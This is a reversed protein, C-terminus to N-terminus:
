DLRPIIKGAHNLHPSDWCSRYGRWANNLRLKFKQRVPVSGYHEDVIVVRANSDGTIMAYINEFFIPNFSAIGRFLETDILFHVIDPTRLVVALRYLHCISTTNWEISITPDISASSTADDDRKGMRTATSSAIPIDIEPLALPLRSTIMQIYSREIMPPIGYIMLSDNEPKDRLMEAVYPSHSSM